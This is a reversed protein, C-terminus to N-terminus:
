RTSCTGSGWSDEEESGLAAAIGGQAAGSHSRTPFVKSVVAIDASGALEAGVIIVDHYLQMGKRGICLHAPTATFTYTQGGWVTVNKKNQQCAFATKDIFLVLGSYLYGFPSFTESVM